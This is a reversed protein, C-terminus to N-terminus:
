SMVLLNPNYPEGKKIVAFVRHILKARVANLVLLKPKGEDVKRKYYNALGPDNRVAVLASMHLLSKLWTNAKPSTRTKGRISTGSSHEFPAVGCHCALERPSNFRTFDDTLALLNTALVKGVGPISCILEYREHVEPHTEIEVQILHDLKEMLDQIKRLQAKDIRTFTACLDKHMHKNVHSIQAKLKTAANVLQQRKMLLQKLKSMKLHDITFMRAKDRFRYAYQAIRLADLEDSKGRQDGLSQKIHLPHALWTPAKHKVLLELLLQSYHGTPELCFLSQELMVRDKRKLEKIWHSIARRSNDIRATRIPHGEDSLLAFDLYAHSVDIGVYHMDTIKPHTM